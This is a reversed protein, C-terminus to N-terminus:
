ISEMMIDPLNNLMWLRWNQDLGFDPAKTTPLGVGFIVRSFSSTTSNTGMVSRHRIYKGLNEMFIFWIIYYTFIGYVHIIHPISIDKLCAVIELDIELTSESVSCQHCDGIRCVVLGPKSRLTGEQSFGM